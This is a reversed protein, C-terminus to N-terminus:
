FLPPYGMVKFTLAMGLLLVFAFLVMAVDFLNM